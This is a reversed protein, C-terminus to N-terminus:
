GELAIAFEKNAVEDWAPMENATACANAMAEQFKMPNLNYALNFASLADKQKELFRFCFGIQMATEENPKLSMLAMFEKLAEEYKQRMYLWSAYFNRMRANTPMLRLADCFLTEQEKPDKSNQGLIIQAWAEPFKPWTEIADQFRKAQFQEIAQKCARIKLSVLDADEPKFPIERDTKKLLYTQGYQVHDERESELGCKHFLNRISQETFVNIHDKHFLHEFSVMSAGSQEELVDLWKPCAVLMRGGPKLMSAYEKLKVDPKEMHELVHYITILDYEKKPLEENLPIGYFHESFRRHSLSYESGHVEHGLSRLFSLLYGTAAGVDGVVLKRKEELVPRLFTKIYNLKHQTTLLATWGPGPRYEDTKYYESLNDKEEVLFAVNGCNKCVRLERQSHTKGLSKWDDKDCVYCIM